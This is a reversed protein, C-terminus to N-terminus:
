LPRILYGQNCQRWQGAQSLKVFYEGRSSDNDLRTRNEPLARGSATFVLLERSYSGAVPIRDVKLLSTLIDDFFKSERLYYKCSFLFVNKVFYSFM